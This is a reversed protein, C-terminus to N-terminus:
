DLTVSEVANTHRYYLIATNSNGAVAAGHCKVFFLCQSVSREAFGDVCKVMQGPKKLLRVSIRNVFEYQEANKPGGALARWVGAVQQAAQTPRAHASPSQYFV